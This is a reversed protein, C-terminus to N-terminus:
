NGKVVDSPPVLPPHVVPSNPDFRGKYNLSAHAVDRQEAVVSSYNAEQKAPRETGVVFPYDIPKSM